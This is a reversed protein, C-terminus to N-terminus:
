GAVIYNLAEEREHPDLVFDAAALYVACEFCHNSNSGSKRALDWCPTGRESWSACGDKAEPSCGRMEWCPMLALLRRLGEQNLGKEHL